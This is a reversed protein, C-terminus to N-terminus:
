WQRAKTPTTNHQKVRGPLHSNALSINLRGFNVSLGLTPPPHQGHSVMLELAFHLEKTAAATNRGQKNPCWM